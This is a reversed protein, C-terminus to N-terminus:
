STWRLLWSCSPPAVHIIWSPLDLLHSGASCFCMFSCSTHRDTQSSGRGGESVGAGRRQVSMVGPTHSLSVSHTWVTHAPNENEIGRIWLRLRMWETESCSFSPRMWWCAASAASWRSWGPSWGWWGRRCMPATRGRSPHSPIAYCSGSQSHSHSRSGSGLHTDQPPEPDSAVSLNM